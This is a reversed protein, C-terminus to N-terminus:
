SLYSALRPLSDRDGVAFRTFIRKILSSQNTMTLGFSRLRQISRKDSDFLKKIVEVGALWALNDAKRWREYRRLTTLNSFDRRKMAAEAIIEALSAADLLGLNVGQGALPHVIHAADGVLAVRPKIYHTAQQAVLPFAYRKEVELVEGLRHSFAFGLVDKFKEDDLSLVRKAEKQPLTWVISSKKEDTLPLFAIPGSELFLQRAMKEHPLATRVTAVIAEQDYDYKDVAIGAQDRLWSHGGDAAVALKAKFIREDATVFEVSDKQERFLALQVPALWKVQPYLTLKETLAAQIVNNEIIYGLVSEAIESSDFHIEGKGAADWVEIQTFPSVRKKQMADWIRLSQFIRRSSLAIASVRHYYQDESWPHFHSQAELIGISLATQQALACALALGVIGGGVIIIDHTYTQM